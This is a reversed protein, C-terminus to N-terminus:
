TREEKVTRAEVKRKLPSLEPITIGEMSFFAQKWHIGDLFFLHLSNYLAFKDMPPNCSQTALSQIYPYLAFQRMSLIVENACRRYHPITLKNGYRQLTRHTEAVKRAVALIIELRKQLTQPEHFDSWELPNDTYAERLCDQLFSPFSLVHAKQIALNNQHCFWLPKEPHCAKVHNQLDMIFTQPLPSSPTLKHWDIKGHYYTPQQTNEKVDESEQKRKKSSPPLMVVKEKCVPCYLAETEMNLLPYQQPTETSGEMGINFLPHYDGSPDKTFDRKRQHLTGELLQQSKRRDQKVWVNKSDFAHTISRSHRILTLTSWKKVEEVGFSMIYNNDHCQAVIKSPGFDIITYTSKDHCENVSIHMGVKLKIKDQLDKSAPEEESDSSPPEGLLSEATAVNSAVDVLDFPREFLLQHPNTVDAMIAVIKTLAEPVPRKVQVENETIKNEEHSTLDM